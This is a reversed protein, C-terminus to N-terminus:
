PVYLWLLSLLSYPSMAHTAKPQTLSDHQGTPGQQSHFPPGPLTSPPKILLRPQTFPSHQPSTVAWLYALGVPFKIPILGQIALSLDESSLM